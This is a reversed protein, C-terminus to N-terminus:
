RIPPIDEEALTSCKKPLVPYGNSYNYIEAKQNYSVQGILLETDFKRLMDSHVQLQAM